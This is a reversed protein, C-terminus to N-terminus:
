GGLSEAYGAAEIADLLTADVLGGSHEGAVGVAEALRRLLPSAPVKARPDRNLRSLESEPDFRTLRRHADLLRLRALGAARRGQEDSAGRVHVAVTGGFCPFSLHAEASM